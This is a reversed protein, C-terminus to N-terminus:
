NLDEADIGVLQIVEVSGNNPDALLDLRNASQEILDLIIYEEKIAPPFNYGIYLEILEIINTETGKVKTNEFYKKLETYEGRALEFLGHICFKLNIDLLKVINEVKSSGDKPLYHEISTADFLKVKEVIPMQKLKSIVSGVDVLVDYTLSSYEMIKWLNFIEVVLAYNKELNDHINKDFITMLKKSVLKKKNASLNCIHLIEKFGEDGAMDLNDVASELLKKSARPMTTAYAFIMKGYSLFYHQNHPDIEIAKIMEKFASVYDKSEFHTKALNFFTAGNENHAVIPTNIVLNETVIGNQNGNQNLYTLNQVQASVYLDGMMPNDIIANDILSAADKYRGLAFYSSNLIMIDDYELKQGHKKLSDYLKIINEYTKKVVSQPIPQSNAHLTSSLQLIKLRIQEVKLVGKVKMVHEIVKQAANKKNLHKSCNQKLIEYSQNASKFQQKLELLQPLQVNHQVFAPQLPPPVPTYSASLPQQPSFSFPFTQDFSNLSFQGLPPLSFHSDLLSQVHPPFPTYTSFAPEVPPPVPTYAVFASPKSPQISDHISTISPQTNQAPSMSMVGNASLIQPQISSHMSSSSQQNNQGQSFSM